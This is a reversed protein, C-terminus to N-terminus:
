YIEAIIQKLYTEAVAGNEKYSTQAEAVLKGEIKVRRDAGRLYWEYENDVQGIDLAQIGCLALDYALVTATPGLSICVLDNKKYARKVSDLIEGYKDWANESPCLVRRVSGAEKLFNNGVGIRAYRGEALLINRGEFLAKFLRFIRRAHEKDKYILYPRSVYADYYIRNLSVYQMIEDRTNGSCMYERIGDAYLEMYQDLTGFVQAIAIIVEQRDSQLIEQLRQALKKDVNQFWPREREMLLEFEGDGFRTLSKGSKILEELLEEGSKIHPVERLGWEYSANKLRNKYIKSQEWLRVTQEEMNAFVSDRNKKWYAAIKEVPIGMDMCQREIEVYCRPSICVYDFGESLLISPPFIYLGHKWERGQKADASDILGKIEYQEKDLLDYVFDAYHGAGWLYIAKM